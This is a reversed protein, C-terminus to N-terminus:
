ISFSHWRAGFCNWFRLSYLHILKANGSSVEKIPFLTLLSSCPETQEIEASQESDAVVADAQPQKTEIGDVDGNSQDKIAEIKKLAVVIEGVCVDNAFREEDIVRLKISGEKLLCRPLPESVFNGNVFSPSLSKKM